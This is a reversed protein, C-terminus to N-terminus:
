RDSRALRATGVPEKLEIQFRGVAHRADARLPIRKADRSLWIFVPRHAVEERGDDAVEYGDFRLKWAPLSRGALTLMQEAEVKVRYSFRERGNTVPLRFEEGARLTQARVQELLGLRDYLDGVGLALAPPRAGAALQALVEAGEGRAMDFSKVGRRSGDRLYLRHRERNTQEFSEFGVLGAGERHGWSRFRYRIPYLSEVVPYAESSAELRTEVVDAGAGPLGDTLTLDAIPMDQGLSFVGRYSVQYDYQRGPSDGLAPLSLLLSAALLSKISMLRRHM